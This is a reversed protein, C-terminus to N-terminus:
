LREGTRFFHSLAVSMELDFEFIAEKNLVEKLKKGNGNYYNMCDEKWGPYINCFIADVISRYENNTDFKEISIKYEELVKKTMPFVTFEEPELKQEQRLSCCMSLRM